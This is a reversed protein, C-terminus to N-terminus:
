VTTRYKEDKFALSTKIGIWPIRSQRWSAYNPLTNGSKQIACRNSEKVLDDRKCVGYRGHVRSGNLKISNGETSRNVVWSILSGDLLFIYGFTSKLSQNHAHASDFYGCLGKLIM